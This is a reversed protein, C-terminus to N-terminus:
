SHSHSYVRRVKSALVPFDQSKTLMYRRPELVRQLFQFMQVLYIIIVSTYNTPAFYLRLSHPKFAKTRMPPRRNGRIASEAMLKSPNGLYKVSDSQM